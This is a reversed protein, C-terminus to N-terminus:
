TLYLYFEELLNRSLNRCPIHQIHSVCARLIHSVSFSLLIYACIFMFITYQTYSGGKRSKRTHKRERKTYTTTMRHREGETQSGEKGSDRERGRELGRASESCGLRQKKGDGDIRTRQEGAEGREQVYVCLNAFLERYRGRIKEEQRESRSCGRM